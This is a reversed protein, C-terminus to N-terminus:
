KRRTSAGAPKTRALCRRVTAEYEQPTMPLGNKTVENAGHPVEHRNSTHRAPRVRERKLCGQAKVIEQKSPAPTRTDVTATANGSTYSTTPSPSTKTAGGCGVCALLGGSAVVMALVRLNILPM